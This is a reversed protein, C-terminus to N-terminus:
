TEQIHNAGIEIVVMQTQEPISLITLPVGIHNNLNGKTAFTKYKESLVAYLLEKTTTKGNSGCVAVFPIDLKNRHLQALKQLTELVNDVLICRGDIQYEKEDIVVFAAGKNLAEQAFQNANFNEGKLAFFISNPEIQRTDTSVKKHKKFVEYIHAVTM